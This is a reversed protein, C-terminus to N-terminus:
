MPASRTPRRSDLRFGIRALRPSCRERQALANAEAIRLAAEAAQLDPNHQLGQEILENLKQSQFLEWWRGPIDADQRLRLGGTDASGGPPLYGAIPPQEPQVFDPGLTCGALGLALLAGM